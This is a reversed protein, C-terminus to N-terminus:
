FFGKRKEKKKGDKEKVLGDVSRNTHFYACANATDM